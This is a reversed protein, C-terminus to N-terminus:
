HKVTKYHAIYWELANKWEAKKQLLNNYQINIIQLKIVYKKGGWYNLKLRFATWQNRWCKSYGSTYNWQKDYKIMNKRCM